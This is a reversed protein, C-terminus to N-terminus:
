VRVRIEKFKRCGRKLIRGGLGGVDVCGEERLKIKIDFKM